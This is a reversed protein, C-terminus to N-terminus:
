QEAETRQIIQEAVHLATVACVGGGCGQVIPDYGGLLSGIAFLNSVPKGSLQPHLQNDVIVGFQQWPQPTFFDSQYWDARSTSQRVDLGLIAERIGERSSLLGNSFFSGSALVTYRARLPIDGHNRTWVESADGGNLTIKKVEDGAMWVGGQAVFRRQLQTHLRIGPVSPPLTPLLGLTCSLRESLWRWLRNDALGFCAPMFLADYKEGLPKLAEYLLPWKDENDLLRAINVARFESPNDRLVDLEPLDIEATEANVGQRCLSAAALHPQFDLFGSIGVVLVTEDKFPAVPVDEPSLWASRLTGLPTVRQHNQRASGQLRAGCEALLAETELAFRDIHQAGILHYPHEPPLKDRWADDVLDLSGSSFHLASQGRTIIACRLGQKTLKIGCLLGALGGGIIVTDFKM